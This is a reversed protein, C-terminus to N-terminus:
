HEVVIQRMEPTDSVGDYVHLYYIGNLLASVNFQVTGGKTKQQRLLNGQGDYLRIDYTQETKLQKGDTLTQELAKAQAIAEADIEINIVDTAPNPYMISYLAVPPCIPCPKTDDMLKVPVNMTKSADGCTNTLKVTIKTNTTSNAVVHAYGVATPSSLLTLGSEVSWLVNYNTADTVYNVIADQGPNLFNAPIGGTGNEWTMSNVNAKGVWVDYKFENNGYNIVVYGVGSTSSNKATFNKKNGNTSGETLNDSYLWTYSSPPNNVIFESSSGYCVSSPGTITPPALTTFTVTNSCGSEGAANFAKVCLTYSTSSNLTNITVSTSSSPIDNGIKTSGNYVRYGTPSGSAATWSLTCGMSTISGSVVNLNTPANPPPALTTFTVTNSCGSEGVANFAKVCLTYSTSSNLTNITVSTSSSPIDNGIKTSGNYVRYGTPSGSAATWSLTCGMSTISGSVVNLNSPADPPTTAPLTYTIELKEVNFNLNQTSENANRFSLILTGNKEFNVSTLVNIRATDKVKMDSFDAINTGGELYDWGTSNVNSCSLPGVDQRNVKVTSTSQSSAYLYGVLEAKTITANSPINSQLDFESYGRLLVNGNSIYGLQMLDHATQLEYQGNNLAMGTFINNNCKATNLIDIKTQAYASLTFFIFLLFFKTKM